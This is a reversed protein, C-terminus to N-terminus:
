DLRKQAITCRHRALSRKSIAYAVGTKRRKQINRIIM